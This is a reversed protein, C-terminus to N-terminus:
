TKSGDAQPGPQPETGGTEPKTEPQTDKKEDTDDSFDPEEDAASEAAMEEEEEESPDLLGEKGRKEFLLLVPSAIFVSAFTGLIVGVFITFAFAQLLPGGLFIMIATSTLTTGGTMLTRPLMLNASENILERLPTKGGTALKDKRLSERIRDFNVITDNIAYGIVTLIAAVVVLDIKMDAGLTDAVGIAAVTVLVDFFLAVIAAVGWALSAFRLRMYIVLIVLAAVIAILARWQTEGAVTPGIASALLFPNSLENDRPELTKLWETLNANIALTLGNFSNSDAANPSFTVETSSLTFAQAEPRSDVRDGATTVRFTVGSLGTVESPLDRAKNRLDEAKIPKVFHLDIALNAKTPSDTFEAPEALEVHDSGAWFYKEVADRFYRTKDRLQQADTVSIGEIRLQYTQFDGGASMGTFTGVVKADPSGRVVDGFWRDKNASASPANPDKNWSRDHILWLKDFDDAFRERFKAPDKLKFKLNAQLAVQRVETTRPQWGIPAISDGFVEELRQRLMLNVDNQDRTEWDDQMPFRFDFRYASGSDESTGLGYVPQVEVSKFWDFRAKGTATDMLREEVADRALPEKMQIRFTHGGRFEMGLVNTGLSFLLAFGLVAIVAGVPVVYKMGKVFDINRNELWALSAMSFKVDRRLNLVGLVMAKYAPINAYLTAVIGIAVALAFGQVPGSGLKYLILATLLTTINSDVIASLANKFGEEAAGRPALGKKLEERMRENILINGDIAMGFTLVLGAIGPLTLTGLGAAMAGMILTIIMILNFIVLVGLGRYLWLAFAFVFIAAIIFSILGRKVSEAGESPGLSEEGELKLRVNLSGSKLVNIIDDREQATFRGSLQVQGSIRDKITYASYVKDDIVVALLRPDEGGERHLGTLREFRAVAQGKLSFSVAMQGGQDMSPQIDALDKGTIDYDDLVQVPVWKAGGFEKVLSSSTVKDGTLKLWRYKYGEDRPYENVALDRFGSNEAALVRMELKGTTQLLDKFRQTEAASSFKPLKVEVRNEGLPSIVLETIGNAGLRRNLTEITPGVLNKDEKRQRGEQWTRYFRRAADAREEDFVGPTVLLDFDDKENADARLKFAGLTLEGGRILAGFKSRAQPSLKDMSDGLPSLLEDLRTRADEMDQQELVYRLSSGGKLDQGLNWQFAHLPWRFMSGVTLVGDKNKDRSAFDFGSFETKDVKGDGNKDYEALFEKDIEAPNPAPKPIAMYLALLLILLPHWRRVFDWM